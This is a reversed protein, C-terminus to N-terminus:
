WDSKTAPPLLTTKKPATRRDHSVWTRVFERQADNEPAPWTARELDAKRLKSLLDFVDESNAYGHRLLWCCIVTGTRGIGGFCHLYVPTKKDLSHDIADLINRM